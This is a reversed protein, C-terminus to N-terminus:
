LSWLIVKGIILWDELKEPWVMSSYNNARVRSITKVRGYNSIMFSGEAGKIDRWEEGEFDELSLWRPSNIEPLDEFRLM